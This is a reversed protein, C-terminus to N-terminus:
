DENPPSPLPMWYELEVCIDQETFAPIFRQISKDYWCIIPIAATHFRNWGFVTQDDEPRQDKVSIWENM